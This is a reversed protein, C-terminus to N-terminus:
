LVLERVKSPTVKTPLTPSATRPTSAFTPLQPVGSAGDSEIRVADGILTMLCQGQNKNANDWLHFQRLRYGVLANGGRSAVNARAVAQMECLFLQVFREIGGADKLSTCEKIMHLSLIGLHRVTRSGLVATLSCLLLSRKGTVSNRSTIVVADAVSPDIEAAHSSQVAPISCSSYSPLDDIPFM